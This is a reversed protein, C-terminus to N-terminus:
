QINHVYNITYKMYTQTKNRKKKKHIDFHIPPFSIILRTEMEENKAKKKRESNLGKLDLTSKSTFSQVCLEEDGKYEKFDKPM